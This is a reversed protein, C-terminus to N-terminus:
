SGPKAPTAPKGYLKQYQQRTFERQAYRAFQDDDMPISGNKAIYEKKAKEIEAAPIPAKFMHDKGWWYEPSSTQVLLRTAMDQLDKGQPAKKMVETYENMQDTLAGVFRDYDDKNQQTRTALNVPGLIPLLAQMASRVRPDGEPRAKIKTQDGILRVKASNPMQESVIDIDLFEAPSSSAMGVLQQYRKLSSATWSVDGKANQSLARMFSKQKTADLEEWASEVQPSIAILEDVTTPLKGGPGGKMLAENITNINDLDLSRKAARSQNYGAIVRQVAMDQFVADDPDAKKAAERAEDMRDQLSKEGGLPDKRLDANVSSEIQRAGANRLNSRVTVEVKEAEDARMEGRNAELMEKARFPETRALGAIRAAWLKSTEAQIAKATEEPGWGNVDRQTGAVESQTVRISERFGADDNPNARAQDGYADIRAQSANVVYRKNETASHGAGNFITRGMTSLSAGDFMKQSAQNSLDKRINEREAKLSQIYHPFRDVADKGRLSNYEAQLMGARIMYKSDAEDAEAKNNVQQIALARQFVEDAAKAGVNGLHETAAAVDGGFASATASVQVNPTPIHTSGVQPVASYPVQAM